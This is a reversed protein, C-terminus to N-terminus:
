RSRDVKGAAADLTLQLRKDMRVSLPEQASRSAFDVLRQLKMVHGGILDAIEDHRGSTTIAHADGILDLARKIAERAMWMSRIVNIFYGLQADTPIAKTVEVLYAAGGVVGLQVSLNLEEALTALQVSKGAKNM